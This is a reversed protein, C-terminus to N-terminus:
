ANGEGGLRDGAKVMALSMGLADILSQTAKADFQTTFKVTGSGFVVENQLLVNKNERDTGTTYHLIYMGKLNTNITAIEGIMWGLENIAQNVDDDSVMRLLASMNNSKDPMAQAECMIAYLAKITAHISMNVGSNESSEGVYKCSVKYLGSDNSVLVVQATHICELHSQCGTPNGQEDLGAIKELAKRYESREYAEWEEKTPQHEPETDFSM